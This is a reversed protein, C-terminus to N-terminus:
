WLWTQLHDIRHLLARNNNTIPLRCRSSYYLLCTESRAMVRNEWREQAKDPDPTFSPFLTKKKRLILSSAVQTRVFFFFTLGLEKSVRSFIGLERDHIDCYQEQWALQGSSWSLGKFTKNFLVKGILTGPFIEFAVLVLSNWVPWRIMTRIHWETAIKGHLWLQLPYIADM